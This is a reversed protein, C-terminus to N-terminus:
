VHARGIQPATYRDITNVITRATPMFVPNENDGRIVEEFGEESSWYIEEYKQYAGIRIQDAQPVWSPPTGLWPQITSYQTFAAPSTM